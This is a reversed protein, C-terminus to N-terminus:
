RLPHRPRPAATPLPLVTRIRLHSLLLLPSLLAAASIAAGMAQDSSNSDDRWRSSPSTSFPECLCIETLQRITEGQQASVVWQSACLPTLSSPPSSRGVPPNAGGDSGPGFPSRHLRRIQVVAPYRLLSPQQARPCPGACLPLPAVKARGEEVQRSRGRRRREDCSLREDDESKGRKRQRDDEGTPTWSERERERERDEGSAM